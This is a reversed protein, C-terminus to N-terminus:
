IGLLLTYAFNLAPTMLYSVLSVGGWPIILIFALFMGFHRNFLDYSARTTRPLFARIIHHGDLPYFPLLNFIALSLNVSFLTVIFNILTLTVSTMPLPLFRLILACIAALGINSLPGAAAILAGDKAPDQLNYPDFSVPKGWGFGTVIILITGFPDLHALPNLSVRGAIRPNPDGLRDAALAHCFEHIVLAILISLLLFIFDLPQHLMMSLRGGPSFIQSAAVLLFLYFLLKSNM